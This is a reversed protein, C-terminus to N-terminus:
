DQAYEARENGRQEYEVIIRGINWYTHVMASNATVYVHNRADLITKRIESYINETPVISKGGM